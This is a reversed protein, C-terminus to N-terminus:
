MIVGSSPTSYKASLQIQFVPKKPGDETMQALEEAILMVQGSFPLSDLAPPPTEPESDNASNSPRFLRVGKKILKVDIEEKKHIKKLDEIPTNLMRRTREMNIEAVKTKKYRKLNRKFTKREM